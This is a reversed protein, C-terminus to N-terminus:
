FLYVSICVIFSYTTRFAQSDNTFQGGKSQADLQPLLAAEKEAQLLFDNVQNVYIELLQIALNSQPNEKIFDYLSLISPSQRHARTMGYQSPCSSCFSM